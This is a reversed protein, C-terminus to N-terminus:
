GRTVAFLRQWLRDSRGTLHLLLAPAAPLFLARQLWAAARLRSAFTRRAAHDVARRAAVWDMEGRVYAALPGAALAASELALSMGNGTVPPIMTLADGLRLEAGDADHWPRLELGGVTCLSAPDLDAGAMREAWPTGPVGRLWDAPSRAPEGASGIRRRFLACVNVVGNGLRCFGAYGQPGAHLELDADLHVQRAHAKVGFWRWRGTAQGTAPRRGTARITGAPLPGDPVREGMRLIGGQAVLERALLADLAHRSLCLAPRPLMLSRGLRRPSAFRATEAARAGAAGCADSLGLDELIDQGRGSLFEGCVRHRPYSGSEIVTVPVDQRRLSLALTLGSLGGGVITLSRPSM